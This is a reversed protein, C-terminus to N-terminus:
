DTLLTRWVRGACRGDTTHPGKPMESADHGHHPPTLSVRHRHGAVTVRMEGAFRYWPFDVDSRETREDFVVEDDGTFSLRGGHLALVGHTSHRGDRLWAETAYSPEPVGPTPDAIRAAM